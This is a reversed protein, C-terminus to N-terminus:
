DVSESASPPLLSPALDKTASAGRGVEGAFDVVTEKGLGAPALLTPSPALRLSPRLSCTEPATTDKLRSPNSRRRAKRYHGGKSM